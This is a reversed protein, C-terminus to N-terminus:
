LATVSSPRDVQKQSLDTTNKMLESQCSFLIVVFQIGLSVVALTLHVPQAWSPIAFYAM